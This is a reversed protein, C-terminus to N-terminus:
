GIHRYMLKGAIALVSDPLHSFVAKAAREAVGSEEQTGKPAPYRYYSLDTRRTGWQDKFRILGLNDLDSRGFDVLPIGANKADQIMRWFLFPMSGTAHYREDSCGYKYIMSNRHSLTVIAAVPVGDKSALRFQISEGLCQALNRFWEIPQPPLQHRRRTLLMLRYFKSIIEESRGEEYQLNERDARRIKRQISDKQFSAFISELTPDLDLWHICYTASRNGEEFGVLPRAPRLEVFRYKEKEKLERICAIVERLRDDSDLLPQCHDTFPLSVLRRGTAWSAIRCLPLADTLEDAPACCTVAIPEYGYTVSLARLWRSTHFACADVHQEVFKTWRADSLPAIMYM